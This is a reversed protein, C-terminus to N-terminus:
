PTDVTGPASASYTAENARRVIIPFQHISFSAAIFVCNAETELVLEVFIGPFCLAKIELVRHQWNACLM